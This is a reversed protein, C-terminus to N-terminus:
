QKQSKDRDKAKLFKVTNYRPTFIKTNKQPLIIPAGQLNISKMLNPCNEAMVEQFIKRRRKKDKARLFLMVGLNNYEFSNWLYKPSGKNKKM